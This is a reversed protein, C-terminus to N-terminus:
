VERTIVIVGYPTYEINARTAGDAWQTVKKSQIDIVGRAVVTRKGQPGFVVHIAGDHYEVTYTQGVRDNLGELYVRCGKTTQAIVTQNKM